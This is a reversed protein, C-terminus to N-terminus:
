AAERTIAVGEGIETRLVIFRMSAHIRVRLLVVFIGQAENAKSNGSVIDVDFPELSENEQAFQQLDQRTPLLGQSQLLELFETIAVKIQSKNDATMPLNIFNVLARGISEQLFDAMTRRKGTELGPTLSTTVDNRLTFRQLEPAFVFGAVGNDNLTIYDDRSLNQKDLSVLGALRDANAQNEGPGALDVGPARAAGLAAHFSNLNVTVLGGLGNNAEAVYIKGSPYAYRIRDSRYDAADAVAAAVSQGQTGSLCVSKTKTTIAMLELESNVASSVHEGVFAWRISSSGEGYLLRIGRDDSASGTYDADAFTGDSGTALSTAAVNDPRGTAIRNLVVFDSAVPLDEGDSVLGLDVNKLLEVDAGGQKIRVNCHTADGDTADEIAVSLGNGWAGPSNATVGLVDTASEDFNVTATAQTGNSIRIVRLRSFGKQRLSLAGKYFNGSADPGLGGFIDALEKASGIATIVDVPGREFEGIVCVQNNGISRIGGPPTREDISVGDIAVQETPNSTRALLSSM